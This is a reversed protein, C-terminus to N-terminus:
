SAEGANFIDYDSDAQRDEDRVTNHRDPGKQGMAFTRFADASHSAWNHLPKASMIQNKQDWKKEYARLADLGRRCKEEDFWCKDLVMRVANIGDDVAHRDQVRMRGLGYNRLQEERTLGTGLERAAADHPLEHWDYIYPKDKLQKVYWDLGMGSMELHDIVHFEKGVSQVFWIATTDGIGLDWYTDVPVAKDYPVSGVRKPTKEELAKLSRAYYSGILAAGFSCEFEQDYEEESMTLKAADLESQPLIGTESAKFIFRAWDNPDNGAAIWIKYFHNYGRPTGSFTAWGKRDALLPRVVEGWVMPHMEAYEDFNAGDLYIGKITAPNEAGFLMIRVRDDTAPRVLDVRLDSENPEVYPYDRTYDKLMDWAVRKAQGYTPAIYAYQPNRLACRMSKDITENLLYVTKGFRRHTLIVKFRKDCAHLTEQHKRPRYGSYIRKVQEM